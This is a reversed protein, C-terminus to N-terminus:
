GGTEVGRSRDGPGATPAKAVGTEAGTTQEARRFALARRQAGIGPDGGKLVGRGGVTLLGPASFSLAFDWAGDLGTADQVPTRIYGSGIIPLMEAFQAMTMNQCTFLRALAPNADRPDKGDPGPGDQCKTRNAPDAKKLRPKAAILIYAPVLRDENHFTMKFRDILLTRLMPKISDMDLTNEPSPGGSPVKAIVDFRDADMSKPLGVLMDDGNLDWALTILERLTYGTLNVRGNQIPMGLRVNRGVRVAQGNLMVTEGNSNPQSPKIEAVDFETPPAPLIKLEEPSNPTPQRNVSDVVLVPMAASVPELKLGLQKDVADFITITETATVLGRLPLSYKFSFDWSGTLGTQDVVRRGNFSQSVFIMTPMQEVFQAMTMKHCTYVLVPAFAVPGDGAGGAPPPQLRETTFKCGTEGAPDAEKLQPHKGATLAYAAMPKTDNHVALKFRDALLAQLMLKRTEATSGPPLKAFIDFRDMELWSPGGYVKDADVGYATRILDVMTATRLEFRGGTLFPGRVRTGPSTHVDAADFKAAPGSSQAWAAGSLLAAFGIYAFPRTM